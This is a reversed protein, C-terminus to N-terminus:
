TGSQGGDPTAVVFRGTATVSPTWPAVCPGTTFVLAGPALSSSNFTPTTSAVACGSLFPVILWRFLLLLLLLPPLWSFVL